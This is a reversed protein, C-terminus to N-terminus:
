NPVQIFNISIFLSNVSCSFSYFISGKEKYQGVDNKKLIDDDIIDYFSPWGTGSDYKHISCFLAEGSVIDVYIGDEKNNWDAVLKAAGATDAQVKMEKNLKILNERCQAIAQEHSHVRKITEFSADNPALLCHNIKLFYILPLSIVISDKILKQVQDM